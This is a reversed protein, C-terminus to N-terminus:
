PFKKLFTTQAELEKSLKDAIDYAYTVTTTNDRALRIRNSM